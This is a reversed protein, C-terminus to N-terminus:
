VRCLVVMSGASAVIRWGGAALVEGDIYRRVGDAGDPKNAYDHLAVWGHPSVKPSWAEFDAKCGEYTHEADIHLLGIPKDFTAAVTASAGMTPRVVDTLHFAELRHQFVALVEPWHFKSSGQPEGKVHTKFNRGKRSTGSWWMDVAYVPAGFGERSGVGLCCASKGTYSGVEVIALDASILRAQRRLLLGEEMVLQGYQLQEPDASGDWTTLANEILLDPRTALDRM